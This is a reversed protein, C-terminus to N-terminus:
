NVSSSTVTTKLKYLASPFILDCVITPNFGNSKKLKSLDILEAYGPKSQNMSSNIYVNNPTVSERADRM